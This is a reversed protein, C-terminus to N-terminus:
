DEVCHQHIIIVTITNINSNDTFTTHRKVQVSADIMSYPHDIASIMAFRALMAVVKSISDRVPCIKTTIECVM